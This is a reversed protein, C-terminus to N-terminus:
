ISEDSRLCTMRFLQSTGTPAIAAVSTTAAHPLEDDVVPPEPEPLGGADDAEDAAGTEPPARPVMFTLPAVRSVLALPNVRYQNTGSVEVVEFHL